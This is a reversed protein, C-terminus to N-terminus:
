ACPRFVAAVSRLSHQLGHSPHLLQHLPKTMSMRPLSLVAAFHTAIRAHLSHPRYMSLVASSSVPASSEPVEGSSADSGQPSQQLQQEQEQAGQQAGPQLMRTILEDPPPLAKRDIKSNANLPLRDTILWASPQMFTPLAASCLAVLAPALARRAAAADADDVAASNSASRAVEVYAALYADGGREGAVQRKVVICNRVAPHKRIVAEVEGTELRQGRIKVQFDVRGIFYLLGSASLRV